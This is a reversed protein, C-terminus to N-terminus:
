EGEPGGEAPAPEVAAPLLAYAALCEASCVVVKDVTAGEASHETLKAELWGPQPDAGFYHAECEPNDCSTVTTRQKPM